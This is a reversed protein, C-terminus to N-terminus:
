RRRVGTSVNPEKYRLQLSAMAAGTLRVTTHKTAATSTRNGAAVALRVILTPLHALSLFILQQQNPLRQQNPSRAPKARNSNCGSASSNSGNYM